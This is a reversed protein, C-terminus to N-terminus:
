LAHSGVYRPAADACRGCVTIGERRASLPKTRAEPETRREIGCRGVCRYEDPMAVARQVRKAVHTVESGDFAFFIADRHVPLVAEWGDDPEAPELNLAGDQFLLRLTPMLKERRCRDCVNAVRWFDEHSPLNRHDFGLTEIERGGEWGCLDCTDTM